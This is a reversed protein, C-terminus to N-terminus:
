TNFTQTGTNTMPVFAIRRLMERTFRNKKESRGDLVGHLIKAAGGFQNDPVTKLWNYFEQYAEESDNAFLPKKTEQFYQAKM